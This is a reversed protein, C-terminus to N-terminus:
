IGDNGPQLDLHELLKVVEIITYIRLKLPENEEFIRKKTGSRIKEELEDRIRSFLINAVPNDDIGRAVQDEIWAVSFNFDNRSPINDSEIMKTIRHDERLKVFVEVRYSPEMIEWAESFYRRVEPPIISDPFFGQLVDDYPYM